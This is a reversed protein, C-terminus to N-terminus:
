DTWILAPALCGSVGHDSWEQCAYQRTQIDKEMGTWSPMGDLKRELMKMSLRAQLVAQLM